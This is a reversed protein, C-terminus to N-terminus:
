SEFTLIDIGRVLDISYVVDETIWYSAITSGGFPVFYGREAIEGTGDVELFRTGHEFFSSAVLGGNHFSPHEQFWMATCGAGNAPPNGDVMTGNQVRYEDIMRFTHTKRWNSADWTMFAGSDEDCTQSFPTEGQVLFFRDKMRRPWRVSHILRQDSTSGMALTEPSRPDKRADLLRIMRTATLIRGNSVETTDYGDAPNIGGGWSAAVKPDSPDRLDVINGRSGYAWRCDMVCAFNHDTVGTVVALETPATKDEVSYIGLQKRGTDGTILLIEGNTDVDENAFYFGVPTISLLKPELPSSVDYISFSKAGAVYLYDGVLRAGTPSGAEIPVTTVYSVNDSTFGAASVGERPAALSLPIVLCFVAAISSIRRV